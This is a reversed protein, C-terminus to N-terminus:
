GIADVQNIGQTQRLDALVIGSLGHNRQALQILAFVLQQSQPQGNVGSGDAGQRQHLQVVAGIHHLGLHNLRHVIADIDHRLNAGNLRCGHGRGAMDQQFQASQCDGFGFFGGQIQGFLALM